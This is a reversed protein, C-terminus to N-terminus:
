GGRVGAPSGVLRRVADAIHAADIGAAALLEAPKGSTPMERVALKVVRHPIDTDAFADLVADGLGGEPRHDEVTVLPGGTAEAAAMLTAGDIPKVSYADLVLAGIGDERLLDAAKIAEHVTIGAGVITVQDSDSSRVVQSGGIEFREDPGYIVPTEARTTRLYRIGSLDAMLKVLHAAQNADCPYLVTSSWLARFAALDELGM